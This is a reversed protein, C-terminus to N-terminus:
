LRAIAGVPPRSSGNPQSRKRRSTLFILVTLTTVSPTLFGYRRRPMWDIM